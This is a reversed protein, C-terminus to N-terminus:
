RAGALLAEDDPGWPEGGDDLWRQLAIRLSEDRDTTSRGSRTVDHLTTTM